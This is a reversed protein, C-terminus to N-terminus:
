SWFQGLFAVRNLADGERKPVQKPFIIFYM